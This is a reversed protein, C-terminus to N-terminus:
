ASQALQEDLRSLTTAASSDARSRIRPTQGAAIAKATPAIDALSVLGDIRTSSSTLVGHYGPGVIAVPYRVVNHHTGPPPLAVYITTAAPTASLRLSPQGGLDVLSSIVRGRVLSALARERSVTSGAGPVFLGVAGRGAYASPDFRPVVIVAVRRDAASAAPALAAAAGAGLM